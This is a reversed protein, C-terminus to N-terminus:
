LNEQKEEMDKHYNEEITNQNRDTSIQKLMYSDRGTNPSSFLLINEQNQECSQLSQMKKTESQREKM